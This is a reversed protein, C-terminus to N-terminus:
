SLVMLAVGHLCTSLAYICWRLDVMFAGHFGTFAGMPTWLLVMSAGHFGLSLVM